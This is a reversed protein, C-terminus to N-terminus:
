SLVSATFSAQEGAAGAPEPALLIVMLLIAAYRGM